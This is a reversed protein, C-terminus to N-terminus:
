FDQSFMDKEGGVLLLSGEEREAEAKTEQM